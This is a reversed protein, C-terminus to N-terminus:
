KVEKKLHKDIRDAALRLETAVDLEQQDGSSIKINNEPSPHTGKDISPITLASVGMKHMIDAYSKNNAIIQKHISERTKRVGKHSIIDAELVRLRARIEDSLPADDYQSMRLKAALGVREERLDTLLAVAYDLKVLDIALAKNIVGHSITFQLFKSVVLSKGHTPSFEQIEKDIKTIATKVTNKHARLTKEIQARSLGQLYLDAIQQELETATILLGKTKQVARDHAMNASYYTKIVNDLPKHPQNAILNSVNGYQSM